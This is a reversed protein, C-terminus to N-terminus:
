HRSNFCLGFHRLTCQASRRLVLVWVSLRARLVCARLEGTLSRAVMVALEMAFPVWREAYLPASDGRLQRWADALLAPSAVAANGRGDYACLRSKLM